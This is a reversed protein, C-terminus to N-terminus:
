ASKKAAIRNVLRRRFYHTKFWPWNLAVHLGILVALVLGNFKHIDGVEFIVVPNQDFLLPTATVVQLLASVLLLGNTLRMSRVFNMM